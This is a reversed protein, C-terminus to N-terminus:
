RVNGQYGSKRKWLTLLLLPLFIITEIIVASFNHWNFLGVFMGAIDAGEAEHIFRPFLFVPSAMFRDSLPWLLQLGVPASNDEALWDLVIHSLYMLGGVLPLLVFSSKDAEQYRRFLRVVGYVVLGYLVAAFLSHSGLHHYGNLDGLIWGILFDLDAACGSFVCFMFYGLTLRDSRATIGVVLAALSHGVPSCM